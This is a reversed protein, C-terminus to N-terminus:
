LYIKANRSLVVGLIRSDKGPIARGPRSVVLDERGFYCGSAVDFYCAGEWIGWSAIFCRGGAQPGRFVSPLVVQHIVHSCSPQSYSGSSLNFSQRDPQNSSYQFNPTDGAIKHKHIVENQNGGHAEKGHPMMMIMLLYVLTVGVLGQGLTLVDPNEDAPVMPHQVPVARLEIHISAMHMLWVPDVASFFWWIASILSM